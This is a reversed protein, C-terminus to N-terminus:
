NDKNDERRYKNKSKIMLFLGFIFSCILIVLTGVILFDKQPHRFQVQMQVSWGSFNFFFLFFWVFSGAAGGVILIWAYLFMRKNKTPQYEREKKKEKDKKLLIKKSSFLFGCGIGVIFSSLVALVESVEYKLVMTIFTASIFVLSTIWIKPLWNKYRIFLVLPEYDSISEEIWNFWGFRWLIVQFPGTMLFLWIFAILMAFFLIIEGKLFEM